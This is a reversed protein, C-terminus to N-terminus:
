LTSWTDTGVCQRSRGTVNGAQTHSRCMGVERRGLGPMASVRKKQDKRSAQQREISARRQNPTELFQYQFQISM